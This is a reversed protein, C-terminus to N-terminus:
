EGPGTKRSPTMLLPIWHSTSSGGLLGWGRSEAYLAMGVAATPFLVRVLLTNVVVVAINHPWRARRTLRRARRPAVAEWVAMAVLVFFFATLRVGAQNSLITDGM